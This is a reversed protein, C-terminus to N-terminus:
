VRVVHDSTEVVPPFALKTSSIIPDTMLQSNLYFKILCTKFSTISRAKPLSFLM